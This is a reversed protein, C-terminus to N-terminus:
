EVPVDGSLRTGRGPASEVDLRGGIADLRDIMGRVGTGYSNQSADFGRGDDQVLFTLRRDGDTLRVTCSTADAYKAVNQLAELVCFYIAAEVDRPYRGVGDAEIITPVVARRAQAELAAALGKDALLPPYIGRALNRLDELAQQTEGEIQELMVEAKAPNRSALQRALRGKVALAVLQQQAGDHLNREIKRREEDQAEVLRRRSARLDELSAQLEATLRVNRLALGAQSALDDVLDAETRTLPEGPPKEITLAGLLEGAHRVAAARTAGEFSPLEAPAGLRL